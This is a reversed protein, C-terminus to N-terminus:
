VARTRASIAVVGGCYWVREFFTRCCRNLEVRCATYVGENIVGWLVRRPQESM